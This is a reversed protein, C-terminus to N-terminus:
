QVIIKKTFLQGEHVATLFYVGAHQIELPLTGNPALQFSNIVQGLSNSLIFDYQENIENKVLIQQNVKCINPIVNFYEITRSLDSVSTLTCFKADNLAYDEKCATTVLNPSQLLEKSKQALYEGGAEDGADIAHKNDNGDPIFPYMARSDNTGQAPDLAHNLGLSHGVEHLIATYLDTEDGGIFTGSNKEYWENDQNVAIYSDTAIPYRVIADNPIGPIIETCGPLSVVTLKTVAATHTGMSLALVTAEDEFYIVNLGDDNILHDNPNIGGLYNISIGTKEEWECLAEKVLMEIEAFTLGQDILAQNTNITNDLYFTIAGNQLTKLSYRRIHKSVQTSNGNVDTDTVTAMQLSFKIDVEESCPLDLLGAPDVRWIGSGMIGPPSIATVNVEILNNSWSLLTSGVNELVIGNDVDTDANPITLKGPVDEFGKGTIRAITAIGAGAVAPLGNEDVFAVAMDSCSVVFYEGDLCITRFDICGTLSQDYYKAKADTIKTNNILENAQLLDVELVLEAIEEYTTGILAYSM